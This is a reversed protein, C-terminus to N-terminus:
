RTKHLQKYEELLKQEETTMGHALKTELLDPRRSWTRGLSQQLRWRQIHAHNGSMLIEPVQDGRYTEPRTYHPYDLLGNVFSDQNASEPDGLVGPIQRVIADILVMAAIEGGSLVYDGISIERDVQRVILREDVGEYRGCVFILGSGLSLEKVTAHTLKEGQPSLYVVEPHTIGLGQQRSKAQMIAEELPEAMMVMGPGGGYPSDDVTRHSNHSFDRPNWTTLEFIRNKWAKGTVGYQTVANFMEPFLTLVDCAFPMM